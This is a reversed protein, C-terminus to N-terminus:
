SQRWGHSELLVAVLVPQTFLINLFDDLRKGIVQLNRAIGAKYLIRINQFLIPAIQINRSIDLFDVIGKWLINGRM